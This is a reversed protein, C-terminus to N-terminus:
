ERLRPRAEEVRAAKKVAQTFPLEELAHLSNHHIFVTIPGQAPLLHAAHEIAHRLPALDSREQKSAPGQDSRSTSVNMAVPTSM